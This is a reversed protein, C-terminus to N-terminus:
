SLCRRLHCSLEVLFGCYVIDSRDVAVLSRPQHVVDPHRRQEVMATIPRIAHPAHGRSHRPLAPVQPLHRLEVHNPWAKQRKRMKARAQLLRARM